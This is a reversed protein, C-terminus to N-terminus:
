KDENLTEDHRYAFFCIDAMDVCILDLCVRSKTIFADSLEQIEDKRYGFGIIEKGNKFIFKVHCMM